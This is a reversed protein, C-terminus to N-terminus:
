SPGSRVSVVFATHSANTPNTLVAVRYGAPVADKLLELQKGVFEAGPLFTMGTINGGPRALSSVFGERLADASAAMVIPISKTVSVAARTTASSTTVIVDVNTQTLETALSPLRDVRGDAYRSEFRINRGEIWGREQLGQRFAAVNDRGSEPPNLFLFGIRFMTEGRQAQSDYQGIILASAVVAIFRRRKMTM